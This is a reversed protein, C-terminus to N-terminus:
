SFLKKGSLLLSANFLFRKEAECRTLCSQVLRVLIAEHVNLIRLVWFAAVTAFRSLNLNVKPRFFSSLLQYLNYFNTEDYLM